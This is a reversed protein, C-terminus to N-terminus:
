APLTESPLFGMEIETKQHPPQNSGHNVGVNIEKDFHQEAVSNANEDSCRWWKKEIHIPQSNELYKPEPEKKSLSEKKLKDKVEQKEKVKIKYQIWNYLKPTLCDYVKSLTGMLIELLGYMTIMM